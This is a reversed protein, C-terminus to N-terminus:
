VVLVYQLQSSSVRTFRSYTLSGLLFLVCTVSLSFIIPSIQTYNYLQFGIIIMLGIILGAYCLKTGCEGDNSESLSQIPHRCMPCVPSLLRPYCDVCIVHQCALTILPREEWCIPCEVPTLDLTTDM